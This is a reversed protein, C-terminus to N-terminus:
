KTNQRILQQLESATQDVQPYVVQRLRVSNASGGTSSIYVLAAAGLAIALLLV